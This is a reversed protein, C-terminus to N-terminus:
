SKVRVTMGFGHSVGKGLGVYNPVSVNSKFLVDFAVFNINKYKMKGTEEMNTISTKVEKDFHIGIGKAFSLINGTLINELFECKGKLDEIQQFKEYNEQNFPLWKRL